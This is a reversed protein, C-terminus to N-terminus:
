LDDTYSEVFNETFEPYTQFLEYKKTDSRFEFLYRRVIETPEKMYYMVFSSGHELEDFSPPSEWVHGKNNEGERYQPYLWVLFYYKKEFFFVNEKKVKFIRDLGFYSSIGCSYKRSQLDNFLLKRYEENSKFVIKNIKCYRAFDQITDQGIYKSLEDLDGKINIELFHNVVPYIKKKIYSEVTYANNKYPRLFRDKENAYFFVGPDLELFEDRIDVQGDKPFIDISLLSIILIIKPFNLFSCKSTYRNIGM